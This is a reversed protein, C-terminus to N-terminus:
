LRKSFHVCPLTVGGTVPHEHLDGRTYRCSEYFRVSTLTSTLKLEAVGNTRAEAEVADLLRRGIGRGVHDPHLYVAKVEDGFLVSFGVVRGVVEAVFFVEGAAMAARYKDPSKWGAWADIQQPTYDKACLTRISAVHVPTIGEADAPTARRILVPSTPPADSVDV